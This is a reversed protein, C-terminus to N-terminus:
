SYKAAYTVNLDVSMDWVTIPPISVAGKLLGPADCKFNRATGNYGHYPDYIHSSYPPPLIRSM